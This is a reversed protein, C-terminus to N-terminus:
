ENIYIRNTRIRCRFSCDDISSSWQWFNRNTWWVISQKPFEFRNNETTYEADSFRKDIQVCVSVYSTFNNVEVRIPLSGHKQDKVSVPDHFLYKGLKLVNILWLEFSVKIQWQAVRFSKM